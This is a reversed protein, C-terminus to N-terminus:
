KMKNERMMVTNDEKEEFVRALKFIKFYNYMSSQKRRHKPIQKLTFFNQICSLKLSFYKKERRNKGSNHIFYTHRSPICIGLNREESHKHFEWAFSSPLKGEYSKKLSWEERRLQPYFFHNSNLCFPLFPIKSGKPSMNKSWLHSSNSLFPFNQIISLLNGFKGFLVDVISISLLMTFPM